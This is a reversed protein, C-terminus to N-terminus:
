AVGCGEQQSQSMQHDAPKPEVHSPCGSLGSWITPRPL